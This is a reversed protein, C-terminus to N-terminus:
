KKVLTTKVSWSPKKDIVQAGHELTVQRAKVMEDLKKEDVRLIIEETVLKKYTEEGLVDKLHKIVEEKPNEPTLVMTLQLDEHVIGPYSEGLSKKLLDRNYTTTTTVSEYLSTRLNDKETQFGLLDM